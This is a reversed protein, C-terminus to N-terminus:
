VGEREAKASQEALVKSASEAVRVLFNEKNERLQADKTRLRTLLEEIYEKLKDLEEKYQIEIQHIKRQHSTEMNKISIQSQKEWRQSECLHDKTLNELVDKMEAEKQSMKSTIQQFENEREELLTKVEQMEWSKAHDAQKQSTLEQELALRDDSWKQREVAWQQCEDVWEQREKELQASLEQYRQDFMEQIERLRNQHEEKQRSSEDKAQELKNLLAKSNEEVSQVRADATKQIAKLEELLQRVMEQLDNREKVLANRDERTQRAGNSLLKFWREERNRSLEEAKKFEDQTQRNINEIAQHKEERLTDLQGRLEQIENQSQERFKESIEIREQKELAWAEKLRREDEDRKARYISLNDEEKKRIAEVKEDSSAGLEKLDSFAKSRMQNLSHGYETRLNELEEAGQRQAREYRQQSQELDRLTREAQKQSEELKIEVKNKSDETSKLQEEHVAIKKWAEDRELTFSTISAELEKIRKEFIKSENVFKKKDEEWKAKELSLKKLKKDRDEILKDEVEQLQDREVRLQDRADQLQDREARLQDGVGQLQDREGKLKNESDQLEDREKELAVLKKQLNEIEQSAPRVVGSKTSDKLGQPLKSVLAFRSNGTRLVDGEELTSRDVLKDNLFTGETSKLDEVFIEEAENWVRAHNWSVTTDRLHIVCSRDTGITIPSDLDFFHGRQEGCLALLFSM